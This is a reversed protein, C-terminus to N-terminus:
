RQREPVILQTGSDLLISSLNNADYILRWANPTGYYRNSIRQLSEGNRCTHITLPRLAARSRADSAAARAAAAMLISDAYTNRSWEEFNLAQVVDDYALVDNAALVSVNIASTQAVAALRSFSSALALLRAQTIDVSTLTADSGISDNAIVNNAAFARAYEVDIADLQNESDAIDTTATQVNAKVTDLANALDTSMDDIEGLRAEAPHAIPATGPARRFTGINENSHPSFKITYGIETDTRYRIKVSTILGTFSRSKLQVRVLPVRGAMRCFERETSLAFGSGAWKDMWEGHMEFPTWEVGMVQEIPEETGPDSERVTNIQLEYELADQPMSHTASDWEFVLPTDIMIGSGLRRLETIRITSTTTM